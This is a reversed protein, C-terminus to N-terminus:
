LTRGFPHEPASQKDPPQQQLSTPVSYVRLWLPIHLVGFSELTREEIQWIKSRKLSWCWVNPKLGFAIACFGRTCVACHLVSKSICVCLSIYTSWALESLGNWVRVACFKDQNSLQEQKKFRSTSTHWLSIRKKGWTVYTKDIQLAIQKNSSLNMKALEHAQCFGM